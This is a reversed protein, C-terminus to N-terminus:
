CGMIIMSRRGMFKYLSLKVYSPTMVAPAITGDVVHPHNVPILGSTSNASEVQTTSGGTTGSWVGNGHGHQRYSYSGGMSISGDPSLRLYRVAGLDVPQWGAGPNGDFLMHMGPSYPISAAQAEILGASWYYYDLEHGSLEVEFDHAHQLPAVHTKLQEQAAGRTKWYSFQTNQATTGNVVHGSTDGGGTTGYESSIRIFGSEGAEVAATNLPLPLTTDFFTRAGYPVSGGPGTYPAGFLRFNKYVPLNNARSINLVNKKHSHPTNWNSVYSFPPTGEFTYSNQPPTNTPEGDNQDLPHGHDDEGGTSLLDSLGLAILRDRYPAAIQTWGPLLGFSSGALVYQNVM